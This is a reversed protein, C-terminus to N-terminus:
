FFLFRSIILAYLVILKSSVIVCYFYFEFWNERFCCFASSVCTFWFTWFLSFLACDWIWVFILVIWLITKRTLWFIISGSWTFLNGSGDYVRWSLSNLRVRTAVVIISCCHYWSQELSNFILGFAFTRQFTKSFQFLREFFLLAVNMCM